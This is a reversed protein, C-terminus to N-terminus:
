SVSIGGCFAPLILFPLVLLDALDSLLLSLSSGLNLTAAGEDALLACVAEPLSGLCFWGGGAFLNGWELPSSKTMAKMKTGRRRRTPHTSRHILDSRTPSQRSRDTAILCLSTPFSPLQYCPLPDITALAISIDRWASNVRGNM